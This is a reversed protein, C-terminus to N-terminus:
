EFYKTEDKAETITVTSDTYEATAVVSPSITRGNLTCNATARVFGESFEFVGVITMDGEYMPDTKWQGFIPRGGTSTIREVMGWGGAGDLTMLDGTIQYKAAGKVLSASCWPADGGSGAVLDSNSSCGVVPLATALSVALACVLGKWYV